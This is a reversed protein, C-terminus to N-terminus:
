DLEQLTESLKTVLYNKIIKKIFQHAPWHDSDWGIEPFHVM